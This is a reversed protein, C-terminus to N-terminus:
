ILVLDNAVQKYLEGPIGMIMNKHPFGGWGITGADLYSVNAKQSLYPIATANRCTALMVMTKKLVPGMVSSAGYHKLLWTILKIMLKNSILKSAFLWNMFKLSRTKQKRKRKTRNTVPENELFLSLASVGLDQLYDTTFNEIGLKNIIFEMDDRSSIFIVVDPNTLIQSEIHNSMNYVYIGQVNEEIRPSYKSELKHEPKKLGLMAPCWRCSKIKDATILIGNSYEKEGILRFSDCFSRVDPTKIPEFDLPFDENHLIKVGFPTLTSISM